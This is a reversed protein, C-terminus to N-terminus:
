KQLIEPDSGRSYDLYQIRNDLISFSLQLHELM